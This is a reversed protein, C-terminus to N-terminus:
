VSIEREWLVEDDKGIGRLLYKGEPLALTVSGDGGQDGALQQDVPVAGRGECAPIAQVLAAGRVDVPVRVRTASLWLPM